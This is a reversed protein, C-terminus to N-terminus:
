PRGNVRRRGHSGRLKSQLIQIEGRVEKLSRRLRAIQAENKKLILNLGQIGAYAVGVADGLNIHRPSDGVGFLAAFDQAMPGIHRVGPEFKYSWTEIPIVTLRKLINLPNVVRGTKIDGRPITGKKM